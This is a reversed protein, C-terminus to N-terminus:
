ESERRDYQSLFHVVRDVIFESTSSLNDEVTKLTSHQIPTKFTGVNEIYLAQADRVYSEVRVNFNEPHDKVIPFVLRFGFVNTPRGFPQLQEDGIKFVSRALYEAASGFNNPTSIVRVTNQQVLLVPIELSPLVASLVAVAKKAFQDVTIGTHDETIQIRERLLNVRSFGQGEPDRREIRAGGQLRTFDEYGCTSCVDNYVARLKDASHNVPIHVFESILSVTRPESLM